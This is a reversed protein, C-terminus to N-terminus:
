IRVRGDAAPVGIWRPAQNTRKNDRSSWRRAAGSRRADTRGALRRHIGASTTRVQSATLLGKRLIAAEPDEGVPVVVDSSDDELGSEEEPESLPIRNLRELDPDDDFAGDDFLDSEEGRAPLDDFRDPESGSGRFPDSEESNLGSSGNGGFGRRDRDRLFDPKEDEDASSGLDGDDEMPSRRSPDYDRGLDDDSRRWDEDDRSEDRRREGTGDPFGPDKVPGPVKDSSVVGCDTSCGTGCGTSCGANCGVSCGGVGCPSCGCDRAGSYGAYYTPAYGYSVPPAAYYPAPAYAYGWGGFFPGPFCFAMSADASAGGASLCAAVAITTLFKMSVGFGTTRSPPEVYIARGSLGTTHNNLSITRRFM